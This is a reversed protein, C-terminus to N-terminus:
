KSEAAVSRFWWMGHPDIRAPHEGGVAKLDLRVLIPVKVVGDVFGNVDRTEISMFHIEENVTESV